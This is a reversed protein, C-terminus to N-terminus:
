ENRKLKFMIILNDNDNVIYNKDFHFIEPNLGCIFSHIEAKNEISEIFSDFPKKTGNKDFRLTFDIYKGAVWGIKVTCSKPKLDKITDQFNQFNAKNRDLQMIRSIEKSLEKNLETENKM